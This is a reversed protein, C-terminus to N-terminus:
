IKFKGSAETLQQALEALNRSAEAIEEISNGQTHVTASSQEAGAANEEAIAALGSMVEIITDKNTIMKESNSTITRILEMSNEVSSSIDKYKIETDSVSEIQDEITQKLIKMTDVSSQSNKALDNVM